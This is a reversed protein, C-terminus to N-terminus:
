IIRITLEGNGHFEEFNEVTDCVSDKFVLVAPGYRHETYQPAEPNPYPISSAERIFKGAKRFEGKSIGTSELVFGTCAEVIHLLIEELLAPICYLVTAHKAQSDPQWDPFHRLELDESIKIAHEKSAIQANYAIRGCLLL